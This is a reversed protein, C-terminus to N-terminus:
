QPRISRGEDSPGNRIPIKRNPKLKSCYRLYQLTATVPAVNRLTYLDIELAVM